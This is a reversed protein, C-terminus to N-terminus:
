RPVPWEVKTARGIAAFGEDPVLVLLPQRITRTKAIDSLRNLPARRSM